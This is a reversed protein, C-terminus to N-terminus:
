DCNKITMGSKLLQLVEDNDLDHWQRYASAVAFYFSERINPCLIMDVSASLYEITRAPATPVAIIIKGPKRRGVVAAAVEMTYGSALGDDVLIVTKDTLSPFQRGSRFLQNREEIQEEVPKILLKIQKEELGLQMVLAGNLIVDGEISVAGFGAETNGPIPIKRIIILDFCLNLQRAIELGVPVGGSPIGLVIATKDAYPELFSAVVRGAEQRDAYVGERNRWAANEIVEAM